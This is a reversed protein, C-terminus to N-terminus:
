HHIFQKMRQVPCDLDPVKKQTPSMVQLSANSLQSDAAAVPWEVELATVAVAGTGDGQERPGVEEGEQGVEEGREWDLNYGAMCNCLHYPGTCSLSERISREM